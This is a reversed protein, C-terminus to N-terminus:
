ILAAAAIGYEAISCRHYVGEIQSLGGPHLEIGIDDARTDKRLSPFLGVAIEVEGKALLYKTVPQMGRKDGM